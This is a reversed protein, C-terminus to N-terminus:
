KHERESHDDAVNQWGMEVRFVYYNIEIHMFANLLLLM